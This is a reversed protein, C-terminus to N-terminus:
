RDLEERFAKVAKQYSEKLKPNNKFQETASIDNPASPWEGKSIDRFEDLNVYTGLKLHEAGSGVWVATNMRDLDSDDEVPQIDDSLKRANEILENRYFEKFDDAEDLQENDQSGVFAQTLQQWLRSWFTKLM